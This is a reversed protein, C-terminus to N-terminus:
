LMVDHKQGDSRILSYLARMDMGYQWDEPSCHAVVGALTDEFSELLHGAISASDSILRSQVVQIKLQLQAVADEVPLDNVMVPGM